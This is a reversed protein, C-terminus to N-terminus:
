KSEKEVYEILIKNIMENVRSDAKKVSLEKISDYLDQTMLLLIKKNRIEKPNKFRKDNDKKAKINSENRSNSIIEKVISKSEKKIANIPNDNFNFSKKGM